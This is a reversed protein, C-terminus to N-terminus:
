RQEGIRLEMLIRRRRREASDDDSQARGAYQIRAGERPRKGSGHQVIHDRPAMVLATKRAAFALFSGVVEPERRQQYPAAGSADGDRVGNMGDELAHHAGVLCQRRCALGLPDTFHFEDLKPLVARNLRHSGALVNIGIGLQTVEKRDMGFHFALSAAHAAYTILLGRAPPVSHLDQTATSVIGVIACQSECCGCTAGPVFHSQQRGLAREDISEDLFGDAGCMVIAANRSGQKLHEQGVFEFLLRGILIVDHQHKIFLSRAIGPFQQFVRASRTSIREDDLMAHQALQFRLLEPFGHAGDGFPIGEHNSVGHAGEHFQLSRLGLRIGNRATKFGVSSKADVELLTGFTILHDLRQAGHGVAYQVEGAM